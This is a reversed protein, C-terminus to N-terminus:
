SKIIFITIFSVSVVCFLVWFFSELSVGPELVALQPKTPNYFVKVKKGIPYRKVTKSHANYNSSDVRHWKIKTSSYTKGNVFYTYKILTTFVYGRDRDSGVEMNNLKSGGVVGSMITGEVTPYFSTCICRPISVLIFYISPLVTVFFALVFLGETKTKNYFDMVDIVEM